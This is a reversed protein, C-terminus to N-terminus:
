FLLLKKSLIYFINREKKLSQSQSNSNANANKSVVIYYVIIIILLGFVASVGILVFNPEGSLQPYIM